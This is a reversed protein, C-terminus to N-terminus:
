GFAILAFDDFAIVIKRRIRDLTFIKRWAIVMGGTRPLADCTIVVDPDAIPGILIGGPVVGLRFLRSFRDFIMDGEPAAHFNYCLEKSEVTSQKVNTEHM